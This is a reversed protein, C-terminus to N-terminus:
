AKPSRRISSSSTSAATRPAATPRRTTPSRSPVSRLGKAELREPEVGHEVIWKMVSKARRDSLDVNHAVKGRNDTHGEIRVKKIQKAALLADTVSQLVEYSKELIVDKNTAFFVPRVIVIQGSTVSVLGPCGNKKPDSSPAGPQDPCADLPDPVLDHDRDGAPCGKRQPDPM